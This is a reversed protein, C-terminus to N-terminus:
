KRFRRLGALGALGLGLLLMAAPEPVATQAYTRFTFDSEPYATFPAYSRMFANGRSYPDYLDGAVSLASSGSLASTFVLYYTTDPVVAYPSWFVDVWSGSTGASTGTALAIGGQTPLASYVSITINETVPAGTASEKLYIGAGSINSNAQQFSQASGGVYLHALAYFIGLNVDPQNQDIISYAFVSGSQLFIVVLVGILFKKM